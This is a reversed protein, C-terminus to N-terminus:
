ALVNSTAGYGASIASLVLSRNILSKRVGRCVDDEGMKASIPIPQALEIAIKKDTCYGQAKPRRKEEGPEPPSELGRKNKGMARKAKKGPMRIIYDTNQQEGEGLLRDNGIRRRDAEQASM